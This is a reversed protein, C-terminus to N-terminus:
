DAYDEGLIDYNLAELENYCDSVEQNLRIIEKNVRAMEDEAWHRLRRRKGKCSAVIRILWNNYRWLKGTEIMLYAYRDLLEIYKGFRDDNEM